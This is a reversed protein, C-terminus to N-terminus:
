ENEEVETRSGTYHPFQTVLGKFDVVSIVTESSAELDELSM